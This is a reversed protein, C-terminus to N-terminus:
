FPIIMDLRAFFVLAVTIGHRPIAIRRGTDLPQALSETKLLMEDHRALAIGDDM